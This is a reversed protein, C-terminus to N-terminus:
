PFSNRELVEHFVTASVQKLARFIILGWLGKPARKKCCSDMKREFSLHGTYHWCASCMKFSDSNICFEIWKYAVHNSASLAQKGLPDKGCMFNYQLTRPSQSAICPQPVSSYVNLAKSGHSCEEHTPMKESKDLLEEKFGFVLTKVSDKSGQRFVYFEYELDHIFSASGSLNAPRFAELFSTRHSGHAKRFTACCAPRILFMTVPQM